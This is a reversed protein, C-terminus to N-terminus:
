FISFVLKEFQVLLAPAQASLLVSTQLYHLKSVGFIDLSPSSSMESVEKNTLQYNLTGNVFILFVLPSYLNDCSQKLCAAELKFIDFLYTFVTFM